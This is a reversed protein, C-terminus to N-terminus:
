TYHNEMEQLYKDCFRRVTKPYAIRCDDNALLVELFSRVARFRPLTKRDFSEDYLDWEQRYLEQYPDTAFIREAVRLKDRIYKKILRKNPPRRKNKKPKSKLEKFLKNVKANVIRLAGNYNDHRRLIALAESDPPRM